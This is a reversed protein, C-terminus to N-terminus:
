VIEGYCFTKGCKKCKWRQQKGKSSIFVGLKTVDPSSCNQCSPTTHITYYTNESKGLKEFIYRDLESIFEKVKEQPIGQISVDVNQSM